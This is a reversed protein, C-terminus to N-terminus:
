REPDLRNKDSMSAGAVPFLYPIKTKDCEASIYIIGYCMDSPVLCKEKSDIGKQLECISFIWGRSKVARGSKSIMALGPILAIPFGYNL